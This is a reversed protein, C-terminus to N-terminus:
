TLFPAPLTSSASNEPPESGDYLWCRTWHGATLQVVPPEQSRCRDTAKPCRPNFHCGDPLRGPDPPDAVAATNAGEARGRPGPARRRTPDAASEILLRTYPHKPNQIVSETPGGEILEGAYMVQVDDAVYRASAIDHTIYLVAVRNEDRLEGLLNLVDLRISADLMSTPEDALLVKPEVALARAIAIRQRQGGSLESPFRDVYREGPTLHVRELLEITQERAQEKTTKRHILLVRGIIHRVRKLSNLSSFPDQFILQVSSYYARRDKHKERVPVGDLLIEGASAPYFRALLRALTTKGSGSEGVLATIQGPYLRLTANQVANIEVQRGSRDRGAFRRSVNRAELVPRRGDNKTGTPANTTDTASSM